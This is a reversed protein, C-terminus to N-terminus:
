QAFNFNLGVSMFSNDQEFDNDTLNFSGGVQLQLKIKELGGRITLAPELLFHSNNDSLYGVQDVNDYMLSGKVNSYNLGIIRSSVAVVFYKSYFGFNPQIGYRIVGASIKGTTGPFAELTSPMHNEMSGVGFLGYTEFIFHDNIPTFYGAGAEVFQGSGGNGNDLDKPIFLGGNVQIAMHDIIAYAGQVEVQNGNGAVSLNTQGQSQMLPVNQTNPVYFKPSCGMYCISLLLLLTLTSTKM